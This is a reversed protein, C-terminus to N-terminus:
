PTARANPSSSALTVKGRQDHGRHGPDPLRGSADGRAPQWEASTCCTPAPAPRTASTWTGAGRFTRRPHVGRSRRTEVHAQGVADPSGSPSSRRTAPAGDDRVRDLHRHGGADRRTEVARRMRAASPLGRSARDLMRRSSRRYDGVEELGLPNVLRPSRNSLRRVRSVSARHRHRGSDQRRSQRHSRLPRGVAKWEGAHDRKGLERGRRADRDDRRPRDEHRARLRPASRQPGLGGPRSGQPRAAPRREASRPHVQRRQLGVLTAGRQLHVNPITLIEAAADVLVPVNHPKALAAIAETSM